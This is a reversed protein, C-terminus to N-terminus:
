ESLTIAKMRQLRVTKSPNLSLGVEKCWESTMNLGLQIIDCLAEEYKGRAIIVIDNAYGYCLISRRTLRELLEDVLLNWLLPSLVGWQSLGKHYIGHVVTRRYQGHSTVLSKIWRSTTADLGRKALSANVAENSTNDFAAQIDLFACLAV